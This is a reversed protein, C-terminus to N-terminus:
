RGSLIYAIRRLENDGARAWQWHTVGYDEHLRDVAVAAAPYLGTERWAPLVKQLEEIRADVAALETDVFELEAATAILRPLWEKLEARLAIRRATLARQREAVYTTKLEPNQLRRRADEFSKGKARGAMVDQLQHLRDTFADLHRELRGSVFAVLDRGIDVPEEASTRARISRYAGSPRPKRGESM